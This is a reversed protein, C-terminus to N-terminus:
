QRSFASRQDNSNDAVWGDARAVKAEYILNSQNASTTIRRMSKLALLINEATEGDVGTLPLRVGDNIGRLCSLASKLVAAQSEHAFAKLLLQLQRHVQRAQELDGRRIARHMFVVASPCINAVASISGDCRAISEFSASEDEIFQAINEVSRDKGITASSSDWADDVVGIVAPIRLLLRLTESKIEVGAHYPDNHIVIPITTAMAVREFHQIIGKQGPRNYYPQVILAADAGLQEAESTRQCTTDTSCTGTAAIIPIRGRSIHVARSILSRREVASLTPGEGILSNVVLGEVGEEIQWEVIHDFAAYDVQGKLFPTVLPTMVGGPLLRKATM